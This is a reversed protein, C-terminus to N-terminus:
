AVKEIGKEPNRFVLGAGLEVPVYNDKLLEQREKESTIKFAKGLSRYEEPLEDKGEENRGSGQPVPSPKEFSSVIRKVGEGKPKEEGKVLPVAPKKDKSAALYAKEMFKALKEPDQRVEFSAQSVMDDVESKVEYFDKGYKSGLRQEARLEAIEQKTKASSAQYEQELIAATAQYKEYKYKTKFDEDSLANMDSLIVTKWQNQQSQTDAPRSLSQLASTKGRLEANELELQRLRDLEANSGDHDVKKPQDNTDDTEQTEVAEENKIEVKM